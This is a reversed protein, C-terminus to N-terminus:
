FVQTGKRFVSYSPVMGETLHRNMIDNQDKLYSEAILRGNRFVLMSRMPWLDDQEYLSSFVKTLALSDVQEASPSSLIHGDGIDLPTMNSYPLNLPGEKLCGSLIFILFTLLGIKRIAM